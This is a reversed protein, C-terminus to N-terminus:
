FIQINLLKPLHQTHRWGTVWTNPVAENADLLQWCWSLKKNESHTIRETM